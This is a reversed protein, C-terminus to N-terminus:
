NWIVRLNKYDVFRQDSSVISLDEALAQSILMRDFPDRHDEKAPLAALKDMHQFRIPLIAAGMAAIGSEVEPPTLNLKPKLIIEWVSVMSIYTENGSKGLLREVRGPLPTGAMWRVFVNTDLLLRM